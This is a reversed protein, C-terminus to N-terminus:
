VSLGAQLDFVPRHAVGRVEHFFAGADYSKGVPSYANTTVALLQVPRRVYVQGGQRRWRRWVNRDVLVRTPDEIVVGLTAARRKLLTTLLRDGLAGKLVLYAGHDVHAMANDAILDPDGLASPVPVPAITGALTVVSVPAQDLAQAVTGAIAAPVDPLDFVDLVHRVQAVTETMSHSYAAGAALVVRGTVGPAAAAMRDFSGDVLSLRAGRAELGDLVDGIRRVSGPGILLVEGEQEVRGIVVPGFPTNLPLEEAPVVRATGVSLAQRATAVWAGAPAWIRPKPLETVADEDEGDRGTSVLGLPVDQQAAARILHNLTVTKGANKCLGIVSVRSSAGGGAAMVQDLLQMALPSTM